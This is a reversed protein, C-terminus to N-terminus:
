FSCASGHNFRTNYKQKFKGSIKEGNKNEKDIWTHVILDTVFIEPNIIATELIIDKGEFEIHLNSHDDGLIKHSSIKFDNTAKIKLMDFENQIKITQTQHNITLNTTNTPTRTHSSFTPKIQTTPALCDAAVM